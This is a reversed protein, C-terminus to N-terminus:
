LYQGILSESFGAFINWDDGGLWCADISAKAFGALNAAAGLNYIDGTRDIDMSWGPSPSAPESCGHPLGRDLSWDQACSHGKAMAWGVDTHMSTM